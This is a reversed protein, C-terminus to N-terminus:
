LTTRQRVVASGAPDSGQRAPAALPAAERAIPLDYVVRTRTIRDSLTRGTRLFWAAGIVMAALQISWATAEFWEMDPPTPIFLVPFRVAFRVLHARWSPEGGTETVLRMNLARKGLSVGWRAEVALLFAVGALTLTVEDIWNEFTLWGLVQWVEFIAAAEVTGVCLLDISLAATRAAFPVDALERPRLSEFLAVVEDMSQPRAAPDKACM